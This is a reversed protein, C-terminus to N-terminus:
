LLRQYAVAQEIGEHLTPSSLILWSAPTVPAARALEALWLGFDDRGTMKPLTEWLRLVARAPVRGDPDGLLKPDFTAPAIGTEAALTQRDIRHFDAAALLARLVLVSVTGDAPSLAM